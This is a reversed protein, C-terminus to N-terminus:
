YTSLHPMLEVIMKYVDAFSPREDACFASCQNFLPVLVLFSRDIIDQKIDPKLKCLLVKYYLQLAESNYFPIKRTAMEYLVMAFSYVDTKVTVTAKKHFPAITKLQEPSAWHMTCNVGEVVENKRETRASGLKTDASTGLLNVM